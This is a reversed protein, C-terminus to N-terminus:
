AECASEFERVLDRASVPRDGPEPALARTFFANWRTPDSGIDGPVPAVRRLHLELLGRAESGGFPHTGVVMEYAVVALAWLDWGPSPALGRLQEPSMYALTGLLQGPSTDGMTALTEEVPLLKAVGFDLIKPVEAGASRVLMINEPKLDRHVLHRDHAAEIAAGVGHLVARAREPPFRGEQRLAARLTAGSLLEMVLYARGDDAVGVDHVTVVNPHAFGAAARAERKFRALAEDSAVLEPRMVKIAVGRELETDTAEYVTGMGGRGLEHRIVYRAALPPVPSLQTVATAGRAASSSSLREDLLGLGSTVGEVLEQDERSYPEESRKPGLLLLTEPGNAALAIPFIWEIPTDRLWRSEDAPLQQRLWSTDSRQNELPKGLVRVLGMLKSDPPIDPPAPGFSALLRFAQEGPERRVIAVSAPHLAESIRAVAQPAAEGLTRAQRIDTLVGRLVRQADYRERFFRRDLAELWTARRAHALLAAAGLAAYLWGRRVFAQAMTQDSHLALDAVLLVGFLPAVGLLVRRAAAYQLGQRIMVRIDFMRHRLIAYAMAFPGGIAGISVALSWPSAYFALFAQESALRVLLYHVLRAAVALVVGVTLVRLRRLANLDTARWYNWALLLPCALWPLISTGYIVRVFTPSVRLSHTTGFVMNYRATAVIVFATSALAWWPLWVWRGRIRRDPFSAFFMMMVPHSLTATAAVTLTPLLALMGPLMTWIALLGPPAGHEFEVVGLPWCALIIAGLLATSDDARRLAVLWALGLGLVVLLVDVLQLVGDRTTWYAVAKRQLTLPVVVRTEGRQVAIDATGGAWTRGLQRLGARGPLGNVSVIVDQPRVGARDVASGPQVVQVLFGKPHAGGDFGYDEPGALCM